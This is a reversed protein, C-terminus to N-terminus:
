RRHTAVPFHDPDPRMCAEDDRSDTPLFLDSWRTMMGRGVRSGFPRRRAEDLGVQTVPTAGNRPEPSRPDVGMQPAMNAESPAVDRMGSGSSLGHRFGCKVWSAKFSQPLIPKTKCSRGLSRM